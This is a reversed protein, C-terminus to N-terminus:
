ADSGGAARLPSVAAESEEHFLSLVGDELTNGTRTVEDLQVGLRVLFSVLPAVPASDALRVVLHGNGIEVGIVEQRARLLDVVNDTFGQGVMRISPRTHRTGIEAPSGVSLLRGERVVGVMDCLREAEALNHTTLFVTVRERTALRLLDERLEVSAVPDLGATPEDLFILSPRHMLARAIALKQKMGRSWDRVPEDRRDWLRVRQLLEAMREHRVDKRMRWIRGYLDLNDAASLREALGAHELLVGCRKRVRGSQSGVDHGLVVAEGATPEILGLLLRITTTKGAGNRGLFGFIAGRPVELNLDDLARLDGFDRTLGRVVIAPRASKSDEGGHGSSADPAPVLRRVKGHTM